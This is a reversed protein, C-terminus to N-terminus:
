ETTVVEIVDRHHLEHDAGIQREARVDYAHLFGEGIDSHIKYAFEEATAGEPVLFCDPLVNGHRDALGETGGPFVAMVGLENFLATELAQQVGTGDHADMFAQIHDLGQEQEESMVGTITFEDDGPPYDIKDQEAAQKLAKEAHASCPVITLNDYDPDTVIEAYNAQAVDM